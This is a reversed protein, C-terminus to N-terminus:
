PRRGVEDVHRGGGHVPRSQARTEAPQALLVGPLLKEVWLVERHSSLHQRSVDAQDSYDAGPPRGLDCAPHWDPWAGM